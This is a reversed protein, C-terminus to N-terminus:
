QIEGTSEKYITGRRYMYINSGRARLHICTNNMVHYDSGIKLTLTRKKERGHSKTNCKMTAPRRDETTAEKTM